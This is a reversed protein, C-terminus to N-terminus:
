KSGRCGLRVEMSRVAYSYRHDTISLFRRKYRSFTARLSIVIDSGSLVVTGIQYKLRGCSLLESFSYASSGTVLVITKPAQLEESSRGRIIPLASADILATWRYFDCQFAYIMKM